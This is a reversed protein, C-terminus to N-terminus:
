SQKHPRGTLEVIEKEHESFNESKDHLQRSVQSIQDARETAELANWAAISHSPYTSLFASADRSVRTAGWSQFLQRIETSELCIPIAASLFRWLQNM